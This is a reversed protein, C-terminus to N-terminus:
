SRHFGERKPGPELVWATRCTSIHIYVHLYAHIITLFGLFFITKPKNPSGPSNKVANIMSTCASTAVEPAAAVQHAEPTSDGFCSTDVTPGQISELPM